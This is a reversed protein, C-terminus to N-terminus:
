LWAKNNLIVYGFLIHRKKSEKSEGALISADIIASIDGSEANCSDDCDTVSVIILGLDCMEM